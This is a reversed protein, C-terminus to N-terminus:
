LLRTEEWPETLMAPTWVQCIELDELSPPELRPKYSSPTSSSLCSVDLRLWALVRYTPCGIPCMRIHIWHPFSRKQQRM